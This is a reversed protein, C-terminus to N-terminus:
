RSGVKAWTGSASIVVAATRAQCAPIARSRGVVAALAYRSRREIRAVASASPSVTEFGQTILPAPWSRAGSRRTGEMSTTRAMASGGAPAVPREDEGGGEGPQAGTLEGGQLATVDVQDVARDGDLAL